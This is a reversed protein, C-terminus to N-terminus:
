FYRVDIRVHMPVSFVTERKAGDVAKSIEDLATGGLDTDASIRIYWCNQLCSIEHWATFVIYSDIVEICFSPSYSTLMM